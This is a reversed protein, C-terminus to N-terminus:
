RGGSLQYATIKGTKSVVLLKHNAVIPAAIISDSGVRVRAIFHGDDQALWHLYGEADGVVIANSQIVPGTIRRDKLQTQRWEVRGTDRNVAWVQSDTDTAILLDDAAALNHYTSFPRQWLLNNGDVSMALLNGQYSAIYLTNNVILPDTDVDILQQVFSAGQPMAIKREWILQGNALKVATLKGDNFGTIVKDQKIQPVSSARLMYQSQGHDYQWAKSGNAVNLGYLKGDITKVVVKGDSIQPAALIQTSLTSQWSLKGTNMQLALVKGDATGVVVLNEGVGPGSTIQTQTSTRWLRKGSDVDYAAVVGDYNSVFVMGQSAVLPLAMQMKASGNGASATWVPTVTQSQTIPSLPTPKPHNDKGFGSLYSCGVMSLSFTGLLLSTVIKKM